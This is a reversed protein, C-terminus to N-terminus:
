SMASTIATSALSSSATSPWSDGGCRLAKAISPYIDFGFERARDASQDGIPHQDVYLSVVEVSPYHWTGEYPYGVLFRDVFHQAHSLHTYVTAIVAIRPAM